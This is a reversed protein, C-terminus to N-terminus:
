IGMIIDNFLNVVNTNKLMIELINIIFLYIYIMNYFTYM